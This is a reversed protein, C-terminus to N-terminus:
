TAPLSSAIQRACRDGLEVAVASAASQALGARAAKREAHAQDAVAHAKSSRRRLLHGHRRRTGTRRAPRRDRGCRRRARRGPSADRNWAAADEGEVPAIQAGAHPQRHIKGLLTEARPSLRRFCLARRIGRRDVQEADALASPAYACFPSSRSRAPLSRRRRCRDSAASRRVCSGGSRRRASRVILSPTSRTRKRRRCGARGNRCSGSASRQRRALRRATAPRGTRRRQM